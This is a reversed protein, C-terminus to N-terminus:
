QDSPVAEAGEDYAYGPILAVTRNYADLLTRSTTQYGSLMEQLLVSFIRDQIVASVVVGQGEPLGWRNTEGLASVLDSAVAEGYVDAVTPGGEVLPMALWASVFQAPADATGLRLPAKQAPNLALWPLYGEEFWYTAFATAAPVNADTTFGLVSLQAYM